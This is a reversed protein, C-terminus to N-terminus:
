PYYKAAKPTSRNLNVSIIILRYSGNHLIMSAIQSLLLSLQIADKEIYFKVLNDREVASSSALYLQLLNRGFDGLGICLFM